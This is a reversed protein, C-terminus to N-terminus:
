NSVGDRAFSSVPEQTATGFKELLRYLSRRNIGLARATRAKNGAHQSLVSLVHARNITALDAEGGIALVSSQNWQPSIPQLAPQRTDSGEAHRRDDVTSAVTARQQRLRMVERRLQTLEVSKRLWAVLQPTPLEQAIWDIHTDDAAAGAQAYKARASTDASVVIQLSKDATRLQQLFEAQHQCNLALWVADLTQGPLMQLVSSCDNVAQVRFGEAELLPQVAQPDTCVLLIEMRSGPSSIM